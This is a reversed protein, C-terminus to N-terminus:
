REPIPHYITFVTNNFMSVVGQVKTRGNMILPMNIKISPLTNM